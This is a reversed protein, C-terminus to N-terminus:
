YRSKRAYGNGGSRTGKYGDSSRRAGGSGRDRGEDDSSRSNKDFPYKAIEIKTTRIVEDLFSKHKRALFSVANGSEGNRGTRGIRHIYAEVTNPIDYNIVCKVGNVDIGRSLVDTGIIINYKGDHFGKLNSQRKGQQMDGHICCSKVGENTLFNRLSDAEIKTNVFIIIPENNYKSIESLVHTYKEDRSNCLHFEQTIKSHSASETNKITIIAPDILYKHALAKISENATASFMLIQKKEACMKLISKVDESFGMDLMRDFEDLAVIETQGLKLSRRDLHDLARGPTAIILRPNRRLRELQRSMPSGGILVVSKLPCDPSILKNILDSIQMALERTPTLILASKNADTLLKNLIPIVFALTKGSGTRSQALIDFGDIAIPIVTKQIETSNKFGNKNLARLLAECLAFDEFLSEDNNHKNEM